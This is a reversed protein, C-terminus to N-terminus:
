YDIIPKRGNILDLFEEYFKRNKSGKLANKGMIELAHAPDRGAKAWIHIKVALELPSSNDPEFSARKFKVIDDDLKKVYEVYTKLAESQKFEKADLKTSLDDLQLAKWVEDTTTDKNLWQTVKRSRLKSLFEDLIHYNAHSKLAEGSLKELGLIKKAEDDTKGLSLLATTTGWKAVAEAMQSFFDREEADDSTAVGRLLRARYFTNSTIVPSWKTSSSEVSTALTQTCSALCALAVALLAPHLRM